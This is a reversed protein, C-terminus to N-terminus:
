SLRETIRRCQNRGDPCTAVYALLQEVASSLRPSENTNLDYYSRIELLKAIETDRRALISHESGSSIDPSSPLTM